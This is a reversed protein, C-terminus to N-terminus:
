FSKKVQTDIAQQATDQEQYNIVLISSGDPAQWRFPIPITARLSPLFATDIGFGKLIQPLQATHQPTNPMFAVTNLAVGYRKADARAILLNRIYTEGGALM